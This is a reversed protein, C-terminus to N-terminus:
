LVQRGNQMYEHLSKLTLLTVLLSSFAALTTLEWPTLTSKDKNHVKANRLMSVVDITKQHHSHILGRSSLLNGLQSAGNLKSAEKSLGKMSATERLFNELAQGSKEIAEEPDSIFKLVAQALLARENEALINYLERGLKLSVYLRAKVESEVDEKTIIPMEASSSISEIDITLKTNENDQTLIGLERGWKM